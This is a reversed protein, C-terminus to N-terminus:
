DRVPTAPPDPLLSTGSFDRVPRVPPDHRFGGLITNLKEIKNEQFKLLSKNKANKM